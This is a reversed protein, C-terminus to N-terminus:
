KLTAKTIWFAFLEANCSGYNDANRRVRIHGGEGWLPGWSNRLKIFESTKQTVVVAHNVNDSCASDLIGSRYNMFDDNVEVATAYPGFALATNLLIDNCPNNNWADCSDWSDVQVYSKVKKCTKKSAEYTYDDEAALGIGTLYDLANSYWGGNCGGDVEDCDVLQQPSVHRFKALDGNNIQKSVYAEVIAATGFAWCSGCNGQNRVTKWLGAHDEENYGTVSPKKQEENDLEDALEDFSKQSALKRLGLFTQKMQKASMLYKTKFETFTHDAHPGLGLVFGTQEANRKNIYALNAKFNKYRQLGEESNLNYEKAHIHHWIKFQEKTKKHAVADMITYHMSSSLIGAFLSFSGLILLIALSFKM